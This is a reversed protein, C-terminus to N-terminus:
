EAESASFVLAQQTQPGRGEPYLKAGNRFLLPWRFLIQGLLLRRKINIVNNTKTRDLLLFALLSAYYNHRAYYDALISNEYFGDTAPSRPFATGV